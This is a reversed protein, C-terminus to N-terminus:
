KVWEVGVLMHGGFVLDVKQVKWLTLPNLYYM